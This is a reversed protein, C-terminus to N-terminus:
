CVPLSCVRSIRSLFIADRGEGQAHGRLKALIKVSPFLIKFSGFERNTSIKTQKLCKDISLLSRNILRMWTSFDSWNWYFSTILFFFNFRFASNGSSVM